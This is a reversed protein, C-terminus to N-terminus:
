SIKNNVIKLATIWFEYNKPSSSCELKSQSM